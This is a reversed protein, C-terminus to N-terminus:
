QMGSVKQLIYLKPNKEQTEKMKITVEDLSKEKYSVILKMLKLSCDMLITNWKELFPESYKVTPFKKIRLGRPVMQKEVYKQLTKFDWWIKMEKGLLKELPCNKKKIDKNVHKNLYILYSIM